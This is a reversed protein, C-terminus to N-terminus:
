KLFSLQFTGQLNVICSMLNKKEKVYFMNMKKKKNWNFSLNVVSKTRVILNIKSQQTDFTPVM